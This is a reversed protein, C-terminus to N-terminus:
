AWFCADGVGSARRDWTRETLFCLPELWCAAGPHLAWREGGSGSGGGWGWAM